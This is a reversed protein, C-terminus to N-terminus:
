LGSFINKFKKKLKPPPTYSYKLDLSAFRFRIVAHATDRTSYSARFSRVEVDVTYISIKYSVV